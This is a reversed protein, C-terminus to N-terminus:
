AVWDNQPQPTHRQLPLIREEPKVARWEVDLIEMPGGSLPIRVQVRRPEPADHIFRWAYRYGTM